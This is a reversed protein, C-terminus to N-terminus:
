GPKYLNKILDAISSHKLERIDYDNPVIHEIIKSFDTGSIEGMKRLELIDSIGDYFSALRLLYRFIRFLINILFIILFLVIFRITTKSWLYPELLEKEKFTKIAEVDVQFISKTDFMLYLGYLIAVIASVLIIFSLNKYLMGRFRIKKVLAKTTENPIFEKNDYIYYPLYKWPLIFIVGFTSLLKIALNLHDKYIENKSINYQNYIVFIIIAVILFSVGVKQILDLKLFKIGDNSESNKDKDNM